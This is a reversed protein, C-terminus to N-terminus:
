RVTNIELKELRGTSTRWWAIAQLSKGRVAIIEEVNPSNLTIHHNGPETSITHMEGNVTIITSGDDYKYDVAVTHGANCPYFLLATYAPDYFDPAALYSRYLLSEDLVADAINKDVYAQPAIQVSILDEDLTVYYFRLDHGIEPAPLSHGVTIQGKSLADDGLWDLGSGEPYVFGTNLDVALINTDDYLTDGDLDVPLAREDIHSAVLTITQPLSVIRHEESMILARRDNRYDPDPDTLLTYNVRMRDGARNPHFLLMAGSPHEIVDDIGLPLGGPLVTLPFLWIGEVTGSLVQSFVGSLAAADVADVTGSIDVVLEGHVHHTNGGTDVWDYNIEVLGFGDVPTVTGDAAVEFGTPLSPIERFVQTAPPNTTALGQRFVHVPYTGYPFALPASVTFREGIVEIMDDRANPPTIALDSISPDEPKGTADIGAAVAFGLNFTDGRTALPLDAPHRTLQNITRQAQQAMETRKEQTAVVGLLKPFSVALTWIGVLLIVMAVLVEVLTFGARRSPAFRGGSTPTTSCLLRDKNTHRAAPKSFLIINCFQSLNM